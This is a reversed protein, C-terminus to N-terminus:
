DDCAILHWGTSSTVTFATMMARSSTIRRGKVNCESLAESIVITITLQALSVWPWRRTEQGHDLDYLSDCPPGPDLLQDGIKRNGPQLWLLRESRNGNPTWLERTTGAFLTHVWERNHPGHKKLWAKRQGNQRGGHRLYKRYIHLNKPDHASSRCMCLSLFRRSAWRAPSAAGPSCSASMASRLTCLDVAIFARLYIVGSVRIASVLVTIIGIPATAFIIHDEITTCESLYRGFLALLPGLDSALDEPM